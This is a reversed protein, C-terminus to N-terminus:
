RARTAPSRGPPTCSGRNHLGALYERHRPRAEAIASKDEPYTYVVAFKM